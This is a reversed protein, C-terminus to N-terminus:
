YGPSPALLLIMPQSPDHTFQMATTDGMAGKALHSCSNQKSIQIRRIKHQRVKSTKCKSDGDGPCRAQTHTHTHTHIHARQSTSKSMEAKLMHLSHQLQTNRQRTTKANCCSITKLHRRRASAKWSSTGTPRRGGGEKTKLNRQPSASSALHMAESSSSCAFACWTLRQIQRVPLALRAAPSVRRKHKQAHESRQHLVRAGHYLYINCYVHEMISLHMCM